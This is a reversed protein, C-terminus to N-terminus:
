YYCYCYLVNILFDKIQMVCVTKPLSIDNLHLPDCDLVRHSFHQLMLFPLFNDFHPFIFGRKTFYLVWWWLNYFVDYYFIFGMMRLLMSPRTIISLMIIKMVVANGHLTLLQSSFVRKALRVQRAQVRDDSEPIEDNQWCQYLWSWLLRSKLMKVNITKRMRVKPAEMTVPRLGRWLKTLFIHLWGVSLLQQLYVAIHKGLWYYLTHPNFQHWKKTNSM